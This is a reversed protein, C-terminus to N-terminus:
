SFLRPAQDRWSPPALQQLAADFTVAGLLQRDRGVVPLAALHSDAVTRAAKTASDFPDLTMLEELMIEAMSVSEDAVLLDRLTVVGLLRQAQTQDVVYVYYVFDPRALQDQLERRARAVTLEAGISIVDNTMIGGATDPPYALLAVVQERRTAPLMELYSQALRPDLRGVLDAALDPAMLALLRAGQAPAIEEFVQVQREITMTELADAAVPDETLSLLEAAHLYPLADVMRAVEPPHLQDVRHVDGERRAIHPDGRLFEVHQWDLCNTPSGGGLWGRGIWRIVAWPSLDVARLVLRQDVEELWLDNVRTAECNSLDLVLADRVDRILLAAQELQEADVPQATRLDDIELRRRDLDVRRIAAAPLQFLQRSPGKLLISTIPPDDAVSLDIVLDALKARQQHADVVRYRRLGSLMFM